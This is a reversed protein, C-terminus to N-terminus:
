SGFQSIGFAKLKRYLSSRGIGLIKAAQPKNGGSKKLAELIAKKEAERKRTPLHPLLIRPEEKPQPLSDGLGEGVQSRGGGRRTRKTRYRLLDRPLDEVQLVPGPAIAMARVFVNELERVNGPWDHAEFIALVERSIGIFDKQVESLLQHKKLFHEALRPLDEPRERLSPIYISVVDLRYLLDARFTGERVMKKLDKNTAFVLRTKVNRVESSGVPRVEGSELFRLLKAQIPLPMEGIEDLFLTGGEARAFLGLSGQTAGSFAGQVHGFFESEALDKPIAGCHVPVFPGHARPGDYHLARAVLEKGTGSEGRVLVPVNSGRLQNVARHIKAVPASTGVFNSIQYRGHLEAKLTQIEGQLDEVLDEVVRMTSEELVRQQETIDRLYYLTEPVDSVLPSKEVEFLRRGECTELWIPEKAGSKEEQVALLGALPGHQLPTQREIPGFLRSCEQNASLIWGGDSVLVVAAPIGQVVREFLDRQNKLEQFTEQLVKTREDVLIRLRENTLQAGQIAKRLKLLMQVRALLERSDVPKRLFDSAGSQFAQVLDETGGREATMFLIPTDPLGFDERINRCLEYGSIGPLVVDLLYLDFPGREQIERLAAEGSEATSVSYGAAELSRRTLALIEVQDDVVLIRIM